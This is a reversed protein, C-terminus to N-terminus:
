LANPRFRHTVFNEKTRIQVSQFKTCSMAAIRKEGDVNTRRQENSELLKAQIRRFKTALHMSNKQKSYQRNSTYRKAHNTPSENFLLM